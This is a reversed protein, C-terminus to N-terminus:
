EIKILEPVQNQIKRSTGERIRELHRETMFDLVEGIKGIYEGPIQDLLRFVQNFEFQLIEAVYEEYACEGKPTPQLIVNKRNGSQHYKELAGKQQMRAVNKSLNSPSLGLAQAIDAMKQRQERNELLYELIQIQVPTFKLSDKLYISKDTIQTSVNSFRVLKEIFERYKGLWEM